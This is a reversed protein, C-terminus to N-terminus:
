WLTQLMGAQATATYFPTGNTVGSTEWSQGWNMTALDEVLLGEVARAEDVAHAM